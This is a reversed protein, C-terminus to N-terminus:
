QGSGRSRQVTPSGSQKDFVIFESGLRRNHYRSALKCAYPPTVIIAPRAKTTRPTADVAVGHSFRVWNVNDLAVIVLAAITGSPGGGALAPPRPPPPRPAPPPRPPLPVGAAGGAGGALIGSCQRTMSTRLGVESESMLISIHSGVFFQFPLNMPTPLPPKAPEM